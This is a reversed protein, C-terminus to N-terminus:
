TTRTAYMSERANDLRLEYLQRLNPSISADSRNVRGELWAIRLSAFRPLEAHGNPCAKARNIGAAVFHSANRPQYLECAITRLLWYVAEDKFHAEYHPDTLPRLAQGIDGRPTNPNECLRFLEDFKDGLGTSTVTKNMLSSDM